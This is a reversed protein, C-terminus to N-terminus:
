HPWRHQVDEHLHTHPSVRAQSPPAPMLLSPVPPPVRDTATTRAPRWARTVNSLTVKASLVPSLVQSSVLCSYECALARVGDTRLLENLEIRVRVFFAWGYNKPIEVLHHQIVIFTWNITLNKSLRPHTSM